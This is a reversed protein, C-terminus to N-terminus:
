QTFSKESKVNGYNPKTGATMTAIFAASTGPILADLAVLGTQTAQELLDVYSQAKDLETVTKDGLLIPEDGTGLNVKKGDETPNINIDGKGTINVDNKSIINLEQLINLIMNQLEAKFDGKINVIFEGKNETNGVDIYIKGGSATKGDVNIYLSGNKAVGSISVSGNETYKELKFENEIFNTAEDDKLIRDIIIPQNHLPMTVYILQSGLQEVDKPFDIEKLISLGVPVEPMFSGDEFVCAVSGKRYSTQIYDGRDVGAPIIVWCTGSSYRQANIGIKQVPNPRM